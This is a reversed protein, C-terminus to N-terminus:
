TLTDSLGAQYSWQERTDYEVDGFIGIRPTLMLERMVKIRAEGESDIWASSQFNGPLLYRIGAILREDEATFDNGEAYVGAFVTTFRNFYRGYTLEAEWDGPEDAMFEIVTTSM